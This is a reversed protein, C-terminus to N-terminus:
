DSVAPVVRVKSRYGGCLGWDGRQGVASVRVQHGKVGAESVCVGSPYTHQWQVHGWRDSFCLEWWCSRDTARGRRHTSGDPHEGRQNSSRQGKRLNVTPCSPVSGSWSSFKQDWARSSRSVQPWLPIRLSSSTLLVTVALIIVRILLLILLRPLLLLLQLILLLAPYLTFNNLVLVTFFVKKSNIKLIVFM